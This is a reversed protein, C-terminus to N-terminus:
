PGGAAIISIAQYLQNLNTPDPTLGAAVIVNRLSESIYQNVYPGPVTPDFDYWDVSSQTYGYSGASPPSVPTSNVNSQYVRDM